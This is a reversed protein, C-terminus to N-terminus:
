FARRYGLLLEKQRLSPDVSVDLGLRGGLFPRELSGTIQTGASGMGMQGRRGAMINAGINAATGEEDLPIRLNGGYTYSGQSKAGPFNPTISQYGGYVSAPGYSASIQPGYGTFGREGPRELASLGLGIGANRDPDLMANISTNLMRQNIGHRDDELPLEMINTSASMVDNGGGMGVRRPMEVNQGRMLLRARTILDTPSEVEDFTTRPMDDEPFRLHIQRAIRDIEEPDYESVEGAPARVDGGEAYKAHMQELSAMGGRAMTVPSRWKLSLYDSVSMNM